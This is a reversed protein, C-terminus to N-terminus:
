TVDQKCSSDTIKITPDDQKATFKGEGITKASDTLIALNEKTFACDMTYTVPQNSAPNAAPSYIIKVMCKDNQWGIITYTTQALKALNNLSKLQERVEPPMDQTSGVKGMNMGMQLYSLKVPDTLVFTGQTCNKLNESYQAWGSYDVKTPVKEDDAFATQYSFLMSTALSSIFLLKCFNPKMFAVGKAYSIIIDYKIDAYATRSVSYNTIAFKRCIVPM